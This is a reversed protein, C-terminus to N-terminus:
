KELVPDQSEGFHFGISTNQLWQSAFIDYITGRWLRSVLRGWTWLHALEITTRFYSFVERWIETPLALNLSRQKRTPPIPDSTENLGKMRALFEPPLAMEGHREGILYLKPRTLKYWVETPLALNSPLEWKTAPREWQTSLDPSSTEDEDEVEEVFRWIDPSLPRLPLKPSHEEATSSVSGSTRDRDM